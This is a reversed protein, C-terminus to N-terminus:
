MKKCYNIKIIEHGGKRTESPTERQISPANDGDSNTETMVTHKRGWQTNGEGSHTETM